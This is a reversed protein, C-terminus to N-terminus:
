QAHLKWMHIHSLACGIEGPTLERGFDTLAM